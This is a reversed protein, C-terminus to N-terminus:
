RYTMQIDFSFFKQPAVFLLQLERESTSSNTKYPFRITGRPVIQVFPFTM